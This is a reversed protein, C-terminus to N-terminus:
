KYLSLCKSKSYLYCIVFFILFLCVKTLFVLLRNHDIKLSRVHKLNKDSFNVDLKDLLPSAVRELHFVNSDLYGCVVELAIKLVQFEFPLPLEPFLREAAATVSLELEDDGRNHSFQKKLKEVFPLVEQCLPDLLFLEEATVIAKLFGFQVM